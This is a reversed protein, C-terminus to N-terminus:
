RAAVDREVLDAYGNQLRATVPGRGGGGIVRGDVESVPVLGAFTGTVFAEDAAYV